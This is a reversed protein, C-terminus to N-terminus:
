KWETIGLSMFQEKIMPNFHRGLYEDVGFYCVDIQPLMMKLTVLSSSAVSFIINVPHNSIMEEIPRDDIILKVKYHSQLSQYFDDKRLSLRPHPKYYVENFITNRKLVNIIKKFDIAKQNRHGLILLGENVARDCKPMEILTLKKHQCTVEPLYSFVTDVPHFPSVIYGSFIRYESSFVFSKIKKTIHLKDFCSVSYNNFLLNGDPFINLSNLCGRKYLNHQLGQSFVNLSHAIYLDVSEYQKIFKIAQKWCMRMHLPGGNIYFVKCTFPKLEDDLEYRSLVINYPYKCTRIVNKIHFLQSRTFAVFLKVKM